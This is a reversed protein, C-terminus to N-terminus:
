RIIYYGHQEAEAAKERLEKEKEPHAKILQLLNIMPPPKYKGKGAAIKESEIQYDLRAQNAGGSDKAMNSAAQYKTAVDFQDQTRQAIYSLLRSLMVRQVPQYMYGKDTGGLWSDIWRKLQDTKVMGGAIMALEAQTIRLGVGGKNGITNM